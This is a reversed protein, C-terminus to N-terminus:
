RCGRHARENPHMRPHGGHPKQSAGPRECGLAIEGWPATSVVKRALTWSCNAFGTEVTARVVSMDIHSSRTLAVEGFANPLRLRKNARMPNGMGNPGNPDLALLVEEARQQLGAEATHSM